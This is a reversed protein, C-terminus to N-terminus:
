QKAPTAKDIEIRQNGKYSVIFLDGPQVEMIKHKFALADEYSNFNGALIKKMGSEYVVDIHTSAIFDPVDPLDSGPSFAGLQVRFTVIPEELYNQRDLAMKRTKELLDLMEFYELETEHKYLTIADAIANAIKQQGKSSALVSEDTDNSLFGSEILISPMAAQRLIVFGAQRVGRNRIGTAASINDSILEALMISKELYNNQYMSLIIQGETSNPDFGNYKETYDQELLISANERKAVELNEMATHLGMVYIETGEIARDPFANAHISIFLDAQHKNAMEIREFLPVFVDETRTYLVNIEPFRQGLIQGLAKSIGLTVEKERAISGTCGHDIGGHGADIVITNLPLRDKVDPKYFEGPPITGSVQCKDNYLLNERGDLNNFSLLSPGLFFLIYFLTGINTM